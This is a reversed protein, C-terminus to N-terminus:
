RIASPLLFCLPIHGSIRNSRMWFFASYRSDSGSAITIRSLKRSTANSIFYVCVCLLFALVPIVYFFITAGVLTLDLGFIWMSVCLYIDAVSRLASLKRQKEVSRLNYLLFLLLLLRCLPCFQTVAVRATSLATRQVDLQGLDFIFITLLGSSITSMGKTWLVTRHFLGTILWFLDLEPHNIKTDNPPFAM